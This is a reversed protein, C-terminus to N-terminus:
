VFISTSVLRTKVSKAATMFKKSKLIIRGVIELVPEQVLNSLVSNRSSNGGCPDRLPRPIPSTMAIGWLVLPTLLM